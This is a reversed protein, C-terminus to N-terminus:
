GQAVRPRPPHTAPTAHPTTRPANGHAIPRANCQGPASPNRIGGPGTSPRITARSARDTAAPAAIPAGIGARRSAGRSARRSAGAPAHRAQFRATSRVVQSYTRIADGNRVTAVFRTYTHARRKTPQSQAPSRVEVAFGATCLRTCGVVPCERRSARGGASVMSCNPAPHALRSAAHSARGTTCRPASHLLRMERRSDRWWACAQVFRAEFGAGRSEM